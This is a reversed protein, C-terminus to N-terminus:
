RSFFGTHAWNWNREAMGGVLRGVCSGVSGGVRRDSAKINFKLNYKSVQAVTTKKRM